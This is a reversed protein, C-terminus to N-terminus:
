KGADEVRSHHLTEIPGIPTDFRVARRLVEQWFPSLLGETVEQPTFGQAQIPELVRAAAVGLLELRERLSMGEWDPSIVVLDVDSGEQAGGWAQSGYLWIQAIRIGMAEVQQRFRGIVEELAITREVM